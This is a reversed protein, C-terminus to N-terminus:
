ALDPDAHQLELCRERIPHALELFRKGPDLLELSEERDARVALLDAVVLVVPLLDLGVDLPVRVRLEGVADAGITPLLVDLGLEVPQALDSLGAAGLRSRAAGPRPARANRSRSARCRGCM